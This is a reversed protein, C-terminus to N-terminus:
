RGRSRCSWSAYDRGSHFFPTTQDETHWTGRHRISLLSRHTTGRIRPAGRHDRSSRVKGTAKRISRVTPLPPHGYIDKELELDRHTRKVWASVRGYEGPYKWSSDDKDMMAKYASGNSFNSAMNSTTTSTTDQRTTTTRKALPFTIQLGHGVSRCKM